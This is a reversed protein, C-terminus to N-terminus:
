SRDLGSFHSVVPLDRIQPPYDHFAAVGILSSGAGAAVLLEAAHPSLSVVREAASPLTVTLGLDDLVRIQAGPLQNLMLLALFLPFKLM